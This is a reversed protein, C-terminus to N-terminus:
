FFRALQTDHELYSFLSPQGYLLEFASKGTAICDGLKAATQWFAESGFLLVLPRLSNPADARLCHGAPALQFKGGGLDEVVDFAALSRLLRQMMAPQSGTAQAIEASTACEALLDPVGLKVATFLAQSVCYGTALALAVASPPSPIPNSAHDSM